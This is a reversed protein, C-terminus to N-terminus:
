YRFSTFHIIALPKSLDYKDFWCQWDVFYLGDNAAITEPQWIRTSGEIEPHCLPCIAKTDFTLKQLGIGDEKTLRAIEIAKSRRPKGEWQRISLCAEGRMIKEFRKAWLEYNARLTHIKENIIKDDPILDAGWFPDTIPVGANQLRDKFYTPEGKRPHNAPFAKSLMLVYTVFKESM